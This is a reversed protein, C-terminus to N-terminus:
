VIACFQAGFRLQEGTMQKIEEWFDAAEDKGAERLAKIADATYVVYGGENANGVWGTNDQEKAPVVPLEIGVWQKRIKEPAASGPPTSIIRIRKVVQVEQIFQHSFEIQHPL